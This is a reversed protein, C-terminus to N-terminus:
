QVVAPALLRARYWRALRPVLVATTILVAIPAYHRVAGSGLLALLDCVVFAGAWLATIRMNITHFAPREWLEPPIVRRAFQATWPQRRVLSLTILAALLTYIAVDLNQIVTKDDFGFYLVANLAGFGVALLDVSTIGQ